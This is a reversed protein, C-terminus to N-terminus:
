MEAVTKFITDSDIKLLSLPLRLTVQNLGTEEELHASIYFVCDSGGSCNRCIKIDNHWGSASRSGM